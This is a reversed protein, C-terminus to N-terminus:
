NQGLSFPRLNTTFQCGCPLFDGHGVHFPALEDCENAARRGRPRERRPRLALEPLRDYHDDAWRYEITVKRGEIYGAETLGQRIFERTM